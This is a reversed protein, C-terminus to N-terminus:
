AEMFVVDEGSNITSTSSPVSAELPQSLPESILEQRAESPKAQM